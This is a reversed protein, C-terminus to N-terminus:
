WLGPVSGKLTAQLPAECELKPCDKKANLTAVWEYREKLSVGSYEKRLKEPFTKEIQHLCFCGKTTDSSIAQSAFLQKKGISTLYRDMALAALHKQQIDGLEVGHNSWIYAQFYDDPLDGHQFILAAAAYDEATKFCGEGFIEGVRRRRERDQKAILVHEDPSIKEWNQRVAQDAQVMKKLEESRMRQLEPQERCTLYVPAKAYLNASVTSLCLFICIVITLQCHRFITDAKFKKIMVVPKCQIEM